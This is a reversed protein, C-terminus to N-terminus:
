PAMPGVDAETVLGYLSPASSLENAGIDAKDRMRGHIDEAVFPLLQAAMTAADIAPSGPGIEFVEGVKILKPDIMMAGAGAPGPGGGNVINGIWKTGTTGAAETLPNASGQVINYAVVTNLPELPHSGGLEIGSKNVITNFAVTANYVQKHDTNAGHADDNEGGELLIGFGSVGEIYNNYVKHNGGFIRIGASGAVGDGLVYNGYIENRNGHRQSLHGNSARFTNHRVTNDSSKISIIEPDNNDNKFLNQEILSHASSYAWGSLGNRISEWGNGGNFHVDHFFNHDLRSYQAVQGGGVGGIQIMNGPQMQPGFDNHDIRCNTSTGTITTWEGGGTEMRQIRFRSIRCHDCNTMSITGSGPWTLGIVIVYASNSIALNGTPVVAKLTNAAKVVIPQEATGKASVAPFAYNGDALIICDGAKAAGLATALAASDSVNVTRLCAPLPQDPGSPPAGGDLPPIVVDPASMGGDSTPAGPGDETPPAADAPAAADAAGPAGGTPEGGGPAGGTGAPSGGSGGTPMPSPAHGSSSCAAGVFALLLVLSRGPSAGNYNM